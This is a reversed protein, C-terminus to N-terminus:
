GRGQQLGAVDVDGREPARRGLVGRVTSAPGRRPPSPRVDRRQAGAPRTLGRDGADRRGAQRRTPRSPRRRSRAPKEAAEDVAEPEDEDADAISEDAAVTEIVPKTQHAEAPKGTPEDVVPETKVLQVPKAAPQDVVTPEDLEVASSEPEAARRRPRSPPRRAACGSPGRGHAHPRPWRRPKPLRPRPRKPQLEPMTPM